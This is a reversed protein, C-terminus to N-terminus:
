KINSNEWIVKEVNGMVTLKVVKKVEVHFRKAMEMAIEMAIKESSARYEHKMNKYKETDFIIAYEGSESFQSNNKM